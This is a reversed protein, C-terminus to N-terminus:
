LDKKPSPKHSRVIDPNDGELRQYQFAQRRAEQGEGRPFSFKQVRSRFHMSTHTSAYSKVDEVGGEM